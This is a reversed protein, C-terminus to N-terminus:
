RRISKRKNSFYCFKRDSVGLWFYHWLRCYIRIILHGHFNLFYLFFRVLFFLRGTLSKSNLDTAEEEVTRPLPHNFVTISNNASVFYKFLANNVANLALPVAHFAQNNFHAIVSMNENKADFTSGIIYHDTLTFINSLGVCGLFEDMDYRYELCSDVTKTENLSFPITNKDNKFQKLYLSSVDNLIQNQDTQRLPAFNDAYSKINIKLSPLDETKIPAIKLFILNMILVLLPIILQSLFLGKNRATNIM